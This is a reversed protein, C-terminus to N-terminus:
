KAAHDRRPVESPLRALAKVRVLWLLLLPPALIAVEQMLALANAKTPGTAAHNGGHRGRCGTETTCM